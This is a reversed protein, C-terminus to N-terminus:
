VREVRDEVSLGTPSQWATAPRTTAEATHLIGDHFDWGFTWCFEGGLYSVCFCEFVVHVSRKDCKNFRCRSELLQVLGTAVTCVQERLFM